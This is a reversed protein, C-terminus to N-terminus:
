LLRKVTEVLTAMQYKLLWAASSWEPIQRLTELLPYVCRETEQAYTAMKSRSFGTAMTSLNNCRDICKVLCAAPNEGIRRYYEPKIVAKDAGEPYSVLRVIERVAEGAPLDALRVGCDEVVDHLLIAALVDDCEVGMALAHCAMTLPHVIYPVAERGKRVQGAQCSRAFPLAAAAQKLGKAALVTKLYTYMHEEHFVRDHTEWDPLASEEVIRSVSTELAKALRPLKDTEPLTEGREWSSVAQFSVGLEEALQTQTLGQKKRLSAIREGMSM